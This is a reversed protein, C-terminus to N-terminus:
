QASYKKELQESAWFGALAMSVLLFVMIGEPIGFYDDMTVQGLPGATYFGELWPYLEGFLFIGFLLGAVNVLGDLSGTSSAVCSTGPCYGGVIFGVGFVLGGILQPWVFTPTLYIMDAQLLGAWSLWFVGLMATIIATFMMKFVTMDRFYFQGALKKASGLGARELFFGFAVGTVLAFALSAEEGIWGFEYFPGNM